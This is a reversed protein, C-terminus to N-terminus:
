NGHEKIGQAIRDGKRSAAQQQQNSTPRDTTTTTTSSTADSHFPSFLKILLLSRNEQNRGHKRAPTFKVRASL